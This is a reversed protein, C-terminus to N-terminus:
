QGYVHAITIALLIATMSITLIATDSWTWWPM